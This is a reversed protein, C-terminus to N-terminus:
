GSAGFVRAVEQRGLAGRLSWVAEKDAFNTSVVELYLHAGLQVELVAEAYAWQEFDVPALDSRVFRWLKLRSTEEIKKM